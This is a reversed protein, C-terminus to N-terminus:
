GGLRVRRRLRRSTRLAALAGLFPLPAPVATAVPSAVAFTLTHTPYSSDPVTGLSDYTWFYLAQPDPDYGHAFYPGYFGSDNPFGFVDKKEYAAAAFASALDSNGWWPMEGGDSPPSFKSANDTYSGTFTSVDYAKGNVSVTVAQAATANMLAFAAGAAAFHLFFM